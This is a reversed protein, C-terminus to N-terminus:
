EAIVQVAADGLRSRLQALYLSQPQVPHGLSEWYANGTAKATLCGIAWNQATPPQEIIMEPAVCNWVVQNAGAWGHGSGMAGRNRLNIGATGKKREQPDKPSSVRINDYLVGVSWRHHPGSDAYVEESACDFFVNPGAALAHMVFDHRGGRAYCHAVLNLQGEIAFSYRRGGTIQSIPDLCACHTVTINRAARRLNVCSYGFHVSTVNRVWGDTVAIMEVLVWGHSEDTPNAYESDGRLNEVGVESLNQDPEARWLEAGGYIEELANMMPADLTILNGTVSVIRRNFTLDKSGATWQVTNARAPIRDMGLEHIWAKTSPRKVIVEDGVKLGDVRDLHLANAGVPVYADAVHRVAERANAPRRVAAPRDEDGSGAESGKGGVVILSRQKSGTAVLLTGNEDMGEGRLVMGSAMIRLTGAIPYHGKKILVAGRHGAGDLPLKSVADIAAQLRGTADGAGPEVTARVPVDVFRVGGGHYGVNSFDPVRNGHADTKYVLQGDAGVRVWESTALTTETARGSSVVVGLWLGVGLVRSFQMEVNQGFGGRRVASDM